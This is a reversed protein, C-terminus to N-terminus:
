GKGDARLPPVAVQTGPRLAEGGPLYPKAKSHERKTLVPPGPPQQPGGPGGPRASPGGAAPASAGSSPAQRASPSETTSSSSSSSSTTPPASAAPGTGAQYLAYDDTVLTGNAILALGFTTATAGAPVPPTTFRAQAWTSSAAFWPSSTWYFWAGSGDRYYLAFQSVATSTYWTSIDYTAGPAVSPACTQLDLTPLLKADGSSYGSLALQEAKSGTRGPTASSWAATNTGWGGPQFCQPFTTAADTTELSDNLLANAGAAAVPKPPVSSAPSYAPYSAGKYQRVVQDVTKVSTKNTTTKRYTDLWTTFQSFLTPTISRDAPCSATGTPACVRHFTLIVWGGGNNAAGTVTGQLDALTWRSDVQDPARLYQPDAPPLTEARVCSGCSFRTRTDGLGRSTTYGCGAAQAEVAANATSFPYAFSTPKFGWDQLVKRGNCIQAQAETSAVQTLDAHTVTHGGIENGAAAFSSLQQRTLYGSAGTFGTTVYFTGAMGKSAMAQQATAQDADGDDFTLSVVTPGTIAAQAPPAAVLASSVLAAVLLAAVALALLGPLGPPRGRAPRTPHHDTTSM